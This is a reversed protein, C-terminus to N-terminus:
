GPEERIAKGISPISSLFLCGLNRGVGTAPSVPCVRSVDSLGAGTRLRLFATGHKTGPETAREDLVFRVGVNRQYLVFGIRVPGICAREVVAGVYSQCELEGGMVM